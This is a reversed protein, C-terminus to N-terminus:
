TSLINSHSNSSIAGPWYETFDGSKSRSSTDLAATIIPVEIDDKRRVYGPDQLCEVMIESFQGVRLQDSAEADFEPYLGELEELSLGLVVLRAGEPVSLTLDDVVDAALHPGLSPNPTARGDASLALVFFM